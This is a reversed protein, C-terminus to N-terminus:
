MAEKLRAEDKRVREKAIPLHARWTDLRTKLPVQSHVTRVYRYHEANGRLAWEIMDGSCLPCKTQLIPEDRKLEFHNNGCDMVLLKGGGVEVATSGCCSFRWGNGGQSIACSMTVPCSGCDVAGIKKETLDLLDLIKLPKM